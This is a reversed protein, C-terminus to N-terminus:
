NAAFGDIAGDGSVDKVREILRDAGSWATLLDAKDSTPSGTVTVNLTVGKERVVVVQFTDPLAHRVIVAQVGNPWEQYTDEPFGMTFDSVYAPASLRSITLIM